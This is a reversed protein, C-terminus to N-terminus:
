LGKYLLCLDYMRNVNEQIHETDRSKKTNGIIMCFIYIIILCLRLRNVNLISKM